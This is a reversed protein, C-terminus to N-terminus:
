RLRGSAVDKFFEERTRLKAGDTKDSGIRNMERVLETARRVCLARQLYPGHCAKDLLKLAEDRLRLYDADDSLSSM